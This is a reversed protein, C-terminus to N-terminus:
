SGGSNDEEFVTMPRLLRDLERKQKNNYAKQQAETMYSIPRQQYGITDPANGAQVEQVYSLYKSPDAMMKDYQSQTLNGAQISKSLAAAQQEPTARFKMFTPSNFARNLLQQQSSPPNYPISYSPAQQVAQPRTFTPMQPTFTGPQQMGLRSALYGAQPTSSLGASYDTYQPRYIARQPAAQTTGESGTTAGGEAFRRTQMGTGASAGM